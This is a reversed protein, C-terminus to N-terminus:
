TQRGQVRVFGRCRVRVGDDVTMEFGMMGDRVVVIAFRFDFRAVVDDPQLHRSNMRQRELEGRRRRDQGAYGVQHSSGPAPRHDREVVARRRM